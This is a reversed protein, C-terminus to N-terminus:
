RLEEGTDEGGEAIEGSVSDTEPARSLRLRLLACAIVGGLAGSGAAATSWDVVLWAAQPQALIERRVLLEAVGWTALGGALAWAGAILGEDVWGRFPGSMLTLGLGGLEWLALLVVGLVAAAPLARAARARRLSPDLALDDASAWRRDPGASLLQGREDARFLTGWPDRAADDLALAEAQLELDVAAWLPPAALGILLLFGVLAWVAYDRPRPTRLQM